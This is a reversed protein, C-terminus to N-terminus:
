GSSGFNMIGIEYAFRVATAAIWFLMRLNSQFHQVFQLFQPPQSPMLFMPFQLPQPPQSFPRFALQFFQSLPSCFPWRLSFFLFGSLIAFGQQPAQSSSKGFGPPTIKCTMFLHNQLSQPPSKEFDTSTLKCARRPSKTFDAPAGLWNRSRAM